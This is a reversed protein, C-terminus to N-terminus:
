VSTAADDAIRDRTAVAMTLLTEDERIEQGEDGMPTVGRRPSAIWRDLLHLVPRAQEGMAALVAFLERQCGSDLVYRELEGLLEGAVAPGELRWLVEAARVQMLGGRTFLYRLQRGQRASLGGRDVLGGLLRPAVASWRLEEPQGDLFRDAPTRDSTISLLAHVAWGAVADGGQACWELVPVAAGAAPGIRALVDIEGARRAADGSTALQELRSVLAPVADVAAPGLVGLVTLALHERASRRPDPEDLPSRALLERAAALLAAEDAGTRTLAGAAELDRPGLEDRRWRDLLRPTARRDGISGLAVAAAASVDPADLLTAFRDAAIRTATLSAALADVAATRVASAHEGVLGLLVPALRDPAARWIRIAGTALRVGELQAVPSERPATLREVWDGCDSERDLRVLAHGWREGPSWTCPSGPAALLGAAGELDSRIAQDLTSWSERGASRLRELNALLRLAPHADSALAVVVDCWQERDSSRLRALDAAEALAVRADPDTLAGLAAVARAPDGAAVLLDAAARRVLVDPDRLRAQAVTAADDWPGYARSLDALLRLTIRRVTARPDTALELLRRGTPGARDARVDDFIRSRASGEPSWPVGAEGCAVADDLWQYPAPGDAPVGASM